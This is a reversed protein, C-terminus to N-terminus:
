RLMYEIEIQRPCLVVDQPMPRLRCIGDDDALVFIKRIQNPARSFPWPSNPQAGAVARAAIEQHKKFGQPVYDFSSQYASFAKDLHASASGESVAFAKL